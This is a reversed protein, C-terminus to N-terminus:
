IFRLVKSLCVSTNGFKLLPYTTRLTATNKVSPLWINKGECGYKEIKGFEYAMAESM